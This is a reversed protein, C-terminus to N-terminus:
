LAEGSETGNQSAGNKRHFTVQENWQLDVATIGEKYQQISPLLHVLRELRKSAKQDLQGIIVPIETFNLTVSEPNRADITELHLGKIQRAQWSIHQLVNLAKADLDPYVFISQLLPSVNYTYRDLSVIHSDSSNKATSGETSNETVVAYPVKDAPSRYLKAWPEKEFIQIDLRPTPLLQRRVSAYRIIDFQQQLDRALEGTHIAYLPKGQLPAIARAVLRAPLLHNNHLTFNKGDFIWVPSKVINWLLISLGIVSAFKLLLRLRSVWVLLKKKQRRRKLSTIKAPRVKEASLPLNSMRKGTNISSQRVVSAFSVPLIIM